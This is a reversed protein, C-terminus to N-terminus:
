IKLLLMDYYKTRKSIHGVFHTAPVYYSCFWVVYICTHGGAFMKVFALTASFSLHLPYFPKLRRFTHAICIISILKEIETDYATKPGKHWVSSPFFTGASSFYVFISFSIHTFQLLQLPHYFLCFNSQIAGVDFRNLLFWSSFLLWVITINVINQWKIWKIVHSSALKCKAFTIFMQTYDGVLMAVSLIGDWCWNWM